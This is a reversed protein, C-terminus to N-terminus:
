RWEPLRPSLPLARIVERLAELEGQPEKWVYQKLLEPVPGSNGAEDKFVLTIIAFDKAKSRKEAIAYNIETELFGEDKFSPTIFFVVGCSEKMGQLISRELPVGAVMADEDLWPEYRLLELTQKFARVLPKDTGKHSLFVKRPKDAMAKRTNLSELARQPYRIDRHKTKDYLSISKKCESIGKEWYERARSLDDRSYLDGEFLWREGQVQHFYARCWDCPHSKYGQYADDLAKRIRPLLDSRNLRSSLRLLHEAWDVPTNVQRHPNEPDANTSQEILSDILALDSDEIIGREELAKDLTFKAQLLKIRGRAEPVGRRNQVESPLSALAAQAQNFRSLAQAFEKRDYLVYAWNTLAVVEAVHSGSERALTIIEQRLSDTRDPAEPDHLLRSLAGLVYLRLWAPHAPEAKLGELTTIAADLTCKGFVLDAQIKLFLTAAEGCESRVAEIRERVDQEASSVTYATGQWIAEQIEAVKQRCDM